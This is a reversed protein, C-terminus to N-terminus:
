WLGSRELAREVRPDDPDGLGAAANARAGGSAADVPAGLGSAAAARARRWRAVGAALATLACVLGAAPVLYSFVRTGSDPPVALVRPGFEAVLARKIQQKDYCRDVLRQIFAREREAQPAETALGLPTGCVPCMVEDEVDALTTKPCALAAPTLAVACLAVFAAVAATAAFRNRSSRAM